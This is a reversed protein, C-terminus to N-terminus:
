ARKRRKANGEEKKPALNYNLVNNAFTLNKSQRSMMKAM